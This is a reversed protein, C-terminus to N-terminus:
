RRYTILVVSVALLSFGFMQLASIRENLAVFVENYRQTMDWAGLAPSPGLGRLKEIAAALLDAYSYFYVYLGFLVCLGIALGTTL